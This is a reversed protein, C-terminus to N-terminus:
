RQFNEGDESSIRRFRYFCIHGRTKEPVRM